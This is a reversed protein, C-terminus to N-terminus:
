PLIQEGTSFVNWVMAGFVFIAAALYFVLDWRGTAAVILGAVAPTLIGALNGSTNELGMLVGAYQPGIDLANVGFGSSGLSNIGLAAAMCAVVAAPNNVQGLLILFLASGLFAITQFTKRLRTRNVGRRLLGDAVWASGNACLVMSLYPIMGYLGMEKLSFGHVKVLYTPMWAVFIYFGWNNCFHVIILAWVPAKSLIEKWPTRVVQPAVPRGDQIHQLEAPRISPHDEPRDTVLMYWLPCWILGLAGFIYFVFPWGLTTMIWVSVPLAVIMGVYIGSFIFAIARSREYVPVWRSVLSHIAPFNVGEGMGLLSRVILLLSLSRTLPTLLTFFSWWAVGMGLVRKGGYRDALWGGPVQLATYGWFFSSLIIGMTAEGWGFEAMMVPAVVSLNMRDMYCLLNSSFALGVVNFRRPWGQARVGLRSAEESQAEKAAM